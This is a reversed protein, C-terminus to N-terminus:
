KEAYSKNNIFVKTKIDCWNELSIIDQIYKKAESEKLIKNSIYVSIINNEKDYDVGINELVREADMDRFRKTPELTDAVCLIFLLPDEKYSIKRYNKPLLCHLNYREYIEITEEDAMFINHAAITNAVYTFVKFHECSFYRNENNIFCKFEGSRRNNMFENNYNEILGSFLKDAGVIGHDVKGMNSLRYRFYNEKVSYNYWSRKIMTGNNFNIIGRCEDGQASLHFCQKICYRNYPLWRLYKMFTDPVLIDIGMDEKKYFYKRTMYNYINKSKNDSSVVFQGTYATNCYKDYRWHIRDIDLRESNEFLYGFDHALCCLYWYYSFPYPSTQDSYIAINEDITRQLM